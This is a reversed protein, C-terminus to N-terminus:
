SKFCKEFMKITGFFMFTNHYNFCVFLCVITNTPYWFDSWDMSAFFLLKPNRMAMKTSFPPFFIGAIM